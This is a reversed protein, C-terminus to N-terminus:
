HVTPKFHWSLFAPNKFPFNQIEVGCDLRLPADEALTMVKGIAVQRYNAGFTELIQETIAM